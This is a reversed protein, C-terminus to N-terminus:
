TREQAFSLKRFSVLVNPPHNSPLLKATYSLLRVCGQPFFDANYLTVRAKSMQRTRAVIRQIHLAWCTHIPKAILFSYPNCRSDYVFLSAALGTQGCASLIVGWFTYLCFRSISHHRRPHFQWTDSLHSDCVCVPNFPSTHIHTHSANGHQQAAM